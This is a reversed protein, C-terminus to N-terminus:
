HNFTAISVTHLVCKGYVTSGPNTEVDGALMLLQKMRSTLTGAEKYEGVIATGSCAMLLLLIVM